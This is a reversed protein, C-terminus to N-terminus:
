PKPQAPKESAPTATVLPQTLGTLLELTQAAELADTKTELLSEVAEFYKEQLEVYTGIPVAGLRYHRDALEAAEHFHEIADARWKAMEQLTREYRLAAETVQKEIERRAAYFAAQAQLQRAKAADINATNRNWIPLPMSVGFGIVREREGAREESIQPGVSIAPFRENKALEVRFGQQALETARQRLHFNNTYAQALLSPLDGASRFHLPATAVAVHTTPSAARLFNLEVLAAQAELEAATAKRQLTLENAEIVRTELLPTLGAPDRQVFAERLAQFRDAVERAAHEKQRAAFLAYAASRMRGALLSRFRALGLAALEVDGNAIAKRLPIRGPWEIPQVISAAWAVGDTNGGNERVSKHGISTALEPNPWAGASRQGARAAAIEAEYFKLEPNKELAEAVLAEVPVAAPDSNTQALSHEQALSAAQPLVLGCLVFPFISNVKM